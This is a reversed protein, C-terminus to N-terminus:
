IRKEISKNFIRVKAVNLVAEYAPSGRRHRFRGLAHGAGGSDPPM